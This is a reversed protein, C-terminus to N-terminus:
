LLYISDFTVIQKQIKMFELYRTKSSTDIALIDFHADFYNNQIVNTIIKPRPVRIVDVEFSVTDM